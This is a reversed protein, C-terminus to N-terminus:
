VVSLHKAKLPSTSFTLPYTLTLSNFALSGKSLYRFSSLICRFCCETAHQSLTCRFYVSVPQITYPISFALCKCLSFLPVPSGPMLGLKAFLYLRRLVESNFAYSLLAPSFICAACIALDFTASSCNDPASLNTTTVVNQSLLASRLSKVLRTFIM